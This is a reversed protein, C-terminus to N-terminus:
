YTVEQLPLFDPTPGPYVCTSWNPFEQLVWAQCSQQKTEITCFLLLWIQSIGKLYVPHFKSTPCGVWCQVNWESGNLQTQIQVNLYSAASHISPHHHCDGFYPSRLFSWIQLSINILKTKILCEFLSKKTHLYISLCYLITILLMAESGQSGRLLWTVKLFNEKLMKHGQNRWRFIMVITSLRILKRHPGFSNLM